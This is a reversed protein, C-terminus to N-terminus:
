RVRLGTVTFTKGDRVIYLQADILVKQVDASTQVQEVSIQTPVEHKVPVATVSQRESNCADTAGNAVVYATYSLGNVLGTIVCTYESGSHTIEDAERQACRTTFGVGADVSVTYHDAGAVDQWTLTIQEDGPTATVVPKDPATCRCEYPESAYTTTTTSSGANSVLLFNDVRSNSSLTYTVTLDFSEAGSGTIECTVVNDSSVSIEGVTIGSTSSSIAFGSTKNTKFTLIM